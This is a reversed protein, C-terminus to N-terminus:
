RPQRWGAGRPPLAATRISLWPSPAVSDPRRTLVRTVTRRDARPPSCRNSRIVHRLRQLLHSGRPPPPPEKKLFTVNPSCLLFHVFLLWPIFLISSHLVFSTYLSLVCPFLHVASICWKLTEIWRWRHKMPQKIIATLESRTIPNM